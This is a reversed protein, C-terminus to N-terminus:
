RKWRVKTVKPCLYSCGEMVTRVARFLDQAASTKLLFGKIGAEIGQKIMDGDLVGALVIIRTRPVTALIQRSAEIGDMDGLQMDMLILDPMLERAQALATAGDEAGGVIELGPEKQLMVRLSERVLQHDDVLILIKVSSNV